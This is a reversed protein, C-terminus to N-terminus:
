NIQALALLYAWLALIIAGVGLVLFITSIRVLTLKWKVASEYNTKSKKWDLLNVTYRERFFVLLAATLSVLLCGLPALYVPMTEGSIVEGIESFSIAHFYLGELIGAVVILQKATGELAEISQTVMERGVSHWFAILEQKQADPSPPQILNEDM